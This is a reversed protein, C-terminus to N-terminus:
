PHQQAHEYRDGGDTGTGDADCKEDQKVGPERQCPDNARINGM